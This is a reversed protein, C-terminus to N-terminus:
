CWTEILSALAKPNSGNKIHDIINADQCWHSATLEEIEEESFKPKGKLKAGRLEAEVSDRFSKIQESTINM